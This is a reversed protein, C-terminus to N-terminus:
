SIETIHGSSIQVTNGGTDLLLRGHKDIGVYRGRLLSGQEITIEKGKLHDHERWKIMMEESLNQTLATLATLLSEIVMATVLNREHRGIENGISTVQYNDQENLFPREMMNLGVGVILIPQGNNFIQEPLIGAIKKGQVYIDNPWKVKVENLGLRELTDVLALGIILSEVGTVRYGPLIPWAVSCCLDKGYSSVWRSGRRGHGKTQYEALCILPLECRNAIRRLYDNTSDIVPHIELRCATKERIKLLQSEITGRDLLSEMEGLILNGGDIVVPLGRKHFNNSLYELSYEETAGICGDKILQQLLNELM